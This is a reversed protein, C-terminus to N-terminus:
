RVRYQSILSVAGDVLASSQTIAVRGVVVDERNAYAAAGKLLIASKIKSPVSAADVWGATHRVAVANVTRLLDSPWAQDYALVIRGPHSVTDIHAMVTSGSVLNGSNATWTTSSGSSGVYTLSTIATVQWANLRIERECPFYQFYEDCVSSVTPGCHEEVWDISSQLKITLDSDEVSSDIRSHLKFEALSVPLAAAATVISRVVM